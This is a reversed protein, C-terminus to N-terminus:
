LQLDENSRRDYQFLADVHDNLRGYVAGGTLWGQGASEYGVHARAGFDEDDALLDAADKTRVSVVGGLAGGGWLVSAPGREVEVTEILGPDIFTQALHGSAFDQRVGDVLLLIRDGSLGRIRVGEGIPRAPGTLSLHPVRDVPARPRAGQQHDVQGQDVVDIARAVRDAAQATRAGLATITDLQLPETTDGALSALPMAAAMFIIPWACRGCQWVM